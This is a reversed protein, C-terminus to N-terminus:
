AYGTGSPSKTPVHYGVNRVLSATHPFSSATSLGSYYTAKLYSQMDTSLRQTHLLKDVAPQAWQHIHHFQGVIRRNFTQRSCITVTEGAFNMPLYERELAFETQDPLM